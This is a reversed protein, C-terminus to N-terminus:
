QQPQVPRVDWPTLIVDLHAYTVAGLDAEGPDLKSMGCMPVIYRGFEQGSADCQIIVVDHTEDNMKWSNLFARTKTSREVRYTLEVPPIKTVGNKIIRVNRFGPVEITAEELPLPGTKVLGPLETNDVLVKRKEAMANKQM